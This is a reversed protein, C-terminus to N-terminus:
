DTALDMPFPLKMECRLGAPAFDLSVKGRMEQALSREIFRIGFGRHTPQKVDPGGSERWSLVILAPSQRLDVQWDIALTGRDGFLAGHKAANSALEHCVMALTLATRPALAIDAGSLQIREGAGARYPALAHTLIDRIGAGEWNGQTLLNHAGSLALLRASFSDRFRAPSSTHRLTMSAISQVTALTNKVRHNLENILLHQQSHAKKHQSIDVLMNVAGVLTGASDFLPTPYPTFPVRTGDPRETIAEEGRVIRQEKIAVAMPCEDHPLPTGDPRYLKWSGCWASGEPPTQGWFDAAAENYFTIKGQADTTYVAMPLAELLDRFQRESEQLAHRTRRRWTVDRTVALHATSGDPMPLPAAHTEVHCRTGNPAVLDFEWSLNEGACVREHNKRWAARHEPAILDLTNKGEVQEARALGVMRRGAANMQLLTGDRAVLMICEPATELVARFLMQGQDFSADMPRREAIARQRASIEQKRATIDHMCTVAGTVNGAADKIVDIDVTIWRQAGDPREIRLEVDRIPRGSRLAEATPTEPRTLGRGDPWFLRHSGCFRERGRELQPARGWLDAAQRNFRVIRGEADCICIAVPLLDLITDDAQPPPMTVLVAADRYQTQINM